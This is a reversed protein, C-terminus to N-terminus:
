SQRRGEGRLHRFAALSWKRLMAPTVNSYIAPSLLAACLRVTSALMLSKM